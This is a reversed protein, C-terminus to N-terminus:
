GSLKFTSKHGHTSFAVEWENSHLRDTWVRQNVVCPAGSFFRFWCLVDDLLMRWYMCFGMGPTKSLSTFVTNRRNAEPYYMVHQTEPLKGSNSCGLQSNCVQASFFFLCFSIISSLYFQTTILAPSRYVWPLHACLAKHEKELTLGKENSRKWELVLIFMIHIQERDEDWLAGFHSCDWTDVTWM